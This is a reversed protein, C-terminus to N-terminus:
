GNMEMHRKNKNEFKLQITTDFTSSLFGSFTVYM